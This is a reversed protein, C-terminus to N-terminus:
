LSLFPDRTLMSETIDPTLLAIPLRNLGGVLVVNM